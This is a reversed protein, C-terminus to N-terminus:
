ETADDNVEQEKEVEALRQAPCGNFNIEYMDYNTPSMRLGAYVGQAITNNKDVYLRLGCVNGQRRAEEAAYYHLAKYVGLRRYVPSVYVSQIWWFFANRWDSWEYTILLQGISRGSCEAIVYFGLDDRNCVALVGERVTEPDLDKGETELAMAINFDIINDIHLQSAPRVQISGGPVSTM